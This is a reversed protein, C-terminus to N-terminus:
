EKSNKGEKVVIAKRLARQEIVFLVVLMLFCYIVASYIIVTSVQLSSFADIFGSGKGIEVSEHINNTQFVYEETLVLDGKAEVSVGFITEFKITIYEETEEIIEMGVIPYSDGSSNSWAKANALRVMDDMDYEEDEVLTFDNATIMTDDVINFDDGVVTVSVYTEASGEESEVLVQYVGPEAPLTDPTYIINLFAYFVLILNGM